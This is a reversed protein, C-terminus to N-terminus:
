GAPLGHIPGDAPFITEVDARDLGFTEGGRLWGLWATLHVVTPAAILYQEHPSLADNWNRTLM